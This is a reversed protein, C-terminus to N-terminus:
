RRPARLRSRRFSRGAVRLLCAALFTLMAIGKAPLYSKSASSSERQPTASQGTRPPLPRFEAWARERM